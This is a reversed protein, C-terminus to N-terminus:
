LVLPFNSLFSATKKLLNPSFKELPSIKTKRDFSRYVIEGGLYNKYVAIKIDNSISPIYFAALM